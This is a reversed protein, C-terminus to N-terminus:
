EWEAKDCAIEVMQRIDTSSSGILLRYTGRDTRFRSAFVDYYALDRSTVTLEVDGTEGRKLFIKKFAKLEKVPRDVKPNVASVYLQVVDAGDRDGVNKIPIRVRWEKAGGVGVGEGAVEVKGYEFRTYSLGHGFPFNVAIGHKEYWRYGVYISELYVANTPNYAADGFTGTPTDAYRKPWSYTLKGSPNVEGFLTRALPRGAEQGLYSTILMTGCSELWPLELASGTRCVVVTRPLKWSLIEAIAEDHGPATLMNPRDAGETEKARGFGMTTGTFVLVADARDCAARVLAPSSKSASPPIWGFACFNQADGVRFRFVLEYVRGKEFKVLGRANGPRWDILTRGDVVVSVHSYNSQEALIAFDGSEPARVKASWELEDGVFLEGEGKVSCNYNWTGRTERAFGSRIVKGDRRQEYMWSRVAFADAGSTDTTELLLSDIPLPHDDGAEGGLPFYDIQADQGLFERLGDLFSIEYLPHCECSSGLHAVPTKAVEGFVVVRRTTAKDLPLVGNANRALVIAEEGIDRAVQQHAATLREGRDQTGTLFGTKAMVYLTRLAMADVAQQPVRGDRVATALPYRNTGKTGYFDTLFTVDKGCNAELGGGNMVANDCSHQGGWDTVLTGKFGWRERLLAKQLYSNESCFTGNYRNYATMLSLAGGERVVAEFAPLYIEHLARDDITSATNFRNLEQSNLCFHKPTCALGHAQAAKVLPVVMKAAVVPDESMYEWNRGCLPNRMMNIGPGLMQSKDRARMQAGMVDGHRAALEPNWTSALASPCPLATSQDDVGDVYGWQVRNHEPKMCHGCDNFSWERDIGVRPIANLYMTACLGCLSVREELTMQALKERALREAEDDPLLCSTRASVPVAFASVVIALIGAANAANLFRGAGRKREKM